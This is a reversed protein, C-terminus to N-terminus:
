AKYKVMQMFGYDMHLQRHCHKKVSLGPSENRKGQEVTMCQAALAPLVAAKAASSLFARRNLAM